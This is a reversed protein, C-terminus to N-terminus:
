IPYNGKITVRTYISSLQRFNMANGPQISGSPFRSFVNM